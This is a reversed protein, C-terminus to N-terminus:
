SIEEHCEVCILDIKESYRDLHWEDIKEGTRPERLCKTCRVMKKFKKMSKSFEKRFQLDQKRKIKRTFSSV